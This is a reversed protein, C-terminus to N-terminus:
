NDESPGNDRTSKDLGAKFRNISRTEVTDEPLLDRMSITSGYCKLRASTHAQLKFYAWGTKPLIIAHNMRTVLPGWGLLLFPTYKLNCGRAFILNGFYSIRAQKCLFIQFSLPSAHNYHQTKIFPLLDIRLALRFVTAFQQDDSPCSQLALSSVEKCRKAM